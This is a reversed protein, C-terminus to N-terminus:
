DHVLAAVGNSAAIVLPPGIYARTLHRMSDDQYRQVRVRTLRRREANSEMEVEHDHVHTVKTANRCWGSYIANGLTVFLISIRVGCQVIIQRAEQNTILWM